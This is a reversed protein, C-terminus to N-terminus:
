SEHTTEEKNNSMTVGIGFGVAAGIVTCSIIKIINRTGLEDVAREMFDSITILTM